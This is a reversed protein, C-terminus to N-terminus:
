FFFNPLDEHQPIAYSLSYAGALVGDEIKHAEEIELLDNTKKKLESVYQCPTEM